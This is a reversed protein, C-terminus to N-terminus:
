VPGALATQKTFFALGFFVAGLYILPSPRHVISSLLGDDMAWRGDGPRLRVGAAVCVLGVATLAIMLMDGRFRTAWVLTQPLTLFVVGGLIGGLAALLLSLGGQAFYGGDLIVLLVVLAAAAL